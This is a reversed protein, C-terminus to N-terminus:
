PRAAFSQTSYKGQEIVTTGGARGVGPIDSSWNHRGPPLFIYTRGNAPVKYLKGAIDFNADRGYYNVVILGGMGTPIDPADSKPTPLPAPLVLKRNIKSLRFTGFGAKSNEASHSVIFGVLGRAFTSDTFTNLHQDNAYLAIQNGQAIVKLRNAAIGKRIADSAVHSAVDNWGSAERLSLSYTGEPETTFAYFTSGDSAVRFILGIDTGGLGAIQRTTVEVVFDEVTERYWIWRTRNTDRMLMTYEGVECKYVRAVEDLVPLTCTVFDDSLILSIDPVPTNTATPRPTPTPLPTVTQTATATATPLPTVTPESTPVPTATPSPACASITLALLTVSLGWNLHFLQKM